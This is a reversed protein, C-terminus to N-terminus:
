ASAQTMAAMVEEAAREGSQLAGEIYGNWQTATETGAWHIRGVPMRITDGLRSMVGPSMLGAYCGHAFQDACWDKEIYQIPNGAPKGFFDALQRRIDGYRIEKPLESYHAAEAGLIFGVLAGQESDPPTSDFTMRLPGEDCVMEGSLGAERWFPKDYVMIVKIASGMPMRNMLQRRRTPLAPGFDIRTADLPSMAVIVQRARLTGSDTIVDVGDADQDIHRVPTSTRFEAGHGRALSALGESLQQAGGTIRQEQAGGEASILPMLGGASKLYFLLQLMSVEEPETALVAHIAATFVSRTLRSKIKRNMWQAVSMRDWEDAKLSDQPAEALIQRAMAELRWISIQMDLLSLLPLGPINGKFSRTKGHLRLLNAGHQPQPWLELDLERALKLARNQGPGLWQGGVDVSMGCDATKSYTRGGLRNRAEILMVRQGAQALTRAAQCGSAGGGVIICDWETAQTM